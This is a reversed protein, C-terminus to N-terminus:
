KTKNKAWSYEHIQIISTQSYMVIIVSWAQFFFCIAM